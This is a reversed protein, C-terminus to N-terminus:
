DFFDTFFFYSFSHLLLFLLIFKIVLSAIIRVIYMIRCNHSCLSTDLHWPSYRKLLNIIKEKRKKIEFRHKENYRKQCKSQYNFFPHNTCGSIDLTYCSKITELTKFLKWPLVLYFHCFSLFSRLFFFLFIVSFSFFFVTCISRDLAGVWGDGNCLLSYRIFLCLFFLIFHCFM